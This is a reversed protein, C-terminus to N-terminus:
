NGVLLHLNQKEGQIRLMLLKGILEQKWIGTYVHKM